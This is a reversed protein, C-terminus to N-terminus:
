KEYYKFYGAVNSAILKHGKLSFHVTNKLYLSNLTLDDNGFFPNITPVHNDKALALLMEDYQALIQNNGPLTNAETQNSLLPIQVLILKVRYSRCKSIINELHNKFEAPRVDLFKLGLLNLLRLWDKRKRHLLALFRSGLPILKLFTRLDYPLLRLGAEIIGCSLIVVDPQHQLIAETFQTDIIVVSNDSFSWNFISVGPLANQVLKPYSLWFDKNELGAPTAQSNGVLHVRTKRKNKSM